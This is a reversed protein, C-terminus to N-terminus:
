QHQVQAKAGEPLVSRAARPRGVDAGGATQQLPLLPCAEPAQGEGRGHNKWSAIDDEFRQRRHREFTEETCRFEKGADRKFDSRSIKAEIVHISAGGTWIVVDPLEQSHVHVYNSVALNGKKRMRAAYLDGLEDHSIPSEV